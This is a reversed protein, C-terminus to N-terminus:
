DAFKTPLRVHINRPFAGLQHRPTEIEVTERKEVLWCVDHNLCAGKVAEHPPMASFFHSASLTRQIKRQKKTTYERACLSSRVNKHAPDVSKDTDMWILELLEKGAGQCEQM